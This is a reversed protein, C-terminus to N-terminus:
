RSRVQHIAGPAAAALLQDRAPPCLSLWGPRLTAIIDLDAEPSPGIAHNYGAQGGKQLTVGAPTMLSDM